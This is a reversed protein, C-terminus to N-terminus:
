AGRELEIVLPIGHEFWSRHLEEIKARTPRGGRHFVCEMYDFLNITECYIDTVKAIEEPDQPERAIGAYTGGWIRLRVKPDARINLVWAAVRGTEIAQVTPRIMVIYAEEGRRIVHIRM